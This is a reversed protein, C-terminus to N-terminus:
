VNLPTEMATSQFRSRGERIFRKVGARLTNAIFFELPMQTLELELGERLGGRVGLIRFEQTSSSTTVNSPESKSTMEFTPNASPNIGKTTQARTSTQMQTQTTTAHTTIPDQTTMEKRPASAPVDTLYKIPSPEKIVILHVTEVQDNFLGPIEVRCKYFGADREQVNNITLSVNGSHLRSLLWYRRSLKFNVVTGDASVITNECGLLTVEERGWCFPLVGHTGVDYFCPLTVPRGAVGVITQVSCGTLSVLLASIFTHLTTKM